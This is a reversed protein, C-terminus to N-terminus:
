NNNCINVIKLMKDPNTCASGIMFGDINNIRILNEINNENVSGGYVVKVSMKYKNLIYNKIYDATEYIEINNPILGTGIAWRPEYAIIIDEQYKSNINNLAIELQQTLINNTELNNKEELSEGICLIVKINNELSKIIKKNIEYDTEHFYNRRESHGVIVYDIQMNKIQEISIEGTYAGNNEFYVNQIALKYKKELFYPIYISSPCLIVNSSLKNNIKEIYNKIDNINMYMKMNAILIKNGM